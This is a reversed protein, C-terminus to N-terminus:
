IPWKTIIVKRQITPCYNDERRDRIPRDGIPWKTKIAKRQITPCYNDERRERIPRHNDDEKIQNAHGV